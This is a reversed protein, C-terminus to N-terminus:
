RNVTQVEDVGIAKVTTFTIAPGAIPGAKGGGIFTGTWTVVAKLSHSGAGTFTYGCPPKAAPDSTGKVYAVGASNGCDSASVHVNDAFWDVKQHAIITIGDKVVSYGDKKGDIWLWTPLGVVLHKDSSTTDPNTHIDPKQLGLNAFAAQAIQAPSPAANKIWVGFLGSCTGCAAMPDAAGRARAIDAAPGCIQSMSQGDAATQGAPPTATRYPAVNTYAATYFCVQANPDYTAGSTTGGGQGGSSSGPVTVNFGGSTDNQNSGTNPDDAQAVGVATLLM